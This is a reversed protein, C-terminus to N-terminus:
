ESIDRTGTYLKVKKQSILRAQNAAIGLVFRKLDWRGDKPHGYTIQIEKTNSDSEYEGTVSFNTTDVHICHSGFETPLM